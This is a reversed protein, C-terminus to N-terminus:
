SIQKNINIDTLRFLKRDRNDVAGFTFPVWTLESPDQGRVFVALEEPAPQATGRPNVDGHHRLM